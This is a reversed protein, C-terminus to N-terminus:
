GYLEPCDEPDQDIGLERYRAQMKLDGRQWRLELRCIVHPYRGRYRDYAAQVLARTEDPEIAEMLDFPMGDGYDGYDDFAENWLDCCDVHGRDTHFEGEWVQATIISPWGAPITSGCYSCRHPKRGKKVNKQTRFTM